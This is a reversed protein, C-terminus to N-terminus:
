FSQCKEWAEKRSKPNGFRSKNTGQKIAQNLINQKSTKDPVIIQDKAEFEVWKVCFREM